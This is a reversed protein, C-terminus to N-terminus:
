LPVPVEQLINQIVHEADEVSSETYADAQLLIRHAFVPNV